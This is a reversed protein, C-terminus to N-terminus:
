RSRGEAEPQPKEGGQSKSGPRTAPRGAGVQEVSNARHDFKNRLKFMAEAAALENQPITTELILPFKQILPDFQMVFVAKKGNKFDHFGSLDGFRVLINQPKLEGHALGSVDLNLTTIGPSAFLFRSPIIKASFYSTKEKTSKEEKETKEATLAQADNVIVEVAPVKENEYTLEGEVVVVQGAWCSTTWRGSEFDRPEQRKLEKIARLLQESTDDTGVRNANKEDGSAISAPDALLGEALALLFLLHKM